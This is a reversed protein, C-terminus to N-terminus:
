FHSSHKKCSRQGDAPLAEQLFRLIQNKNLTSLQSAIQELAAIKQRSETLSLGLKTQYLDVLLEYSARIDSRTSVSFELVEAAEKYFGADLLGKGWAHLAKVLTTYNDDFETLAPLNATGWELKLDTNSLGTLNAIKAGQDVLNQVTSAAEKATADPLPVSFPLRDAPIHVLSLSDLSKKRTFNADHERKWFDRDIEKEKINVQHTRVQFLIILILAITFFPFAM